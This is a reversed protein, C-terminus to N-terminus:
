SINDNCATYKLVMMAIDDSQVYQNSFSLVEQRLTQTIIAPSKETVHQLTQRLRETGFWEGNANEAETIGDTYLVISDGSSLQIECDEYGTDVFIGIPLSKVGHLESIKDGSLVYPTCHGGDCYTLKGTKTNLIALFITAFMTSDETSIERNIQGIIAAPSRDSSAKAKIWIMLGSMFLAAPMGKDSVDGLCVLLRDEDLQIFHYFDGGVERAPILCAYLDIDATRLVEGPLFSHQIDKAIKMESEMREKEATTIRLNEMSELLAEYLLMNELAIAAPSSIMELLRLDQGNFALNGKKNIVQLVGLTKGNSRVPVCIMNRTPVKVKASVRNSWRQDKSVDAILVSEGSSAVLGAIGEGAKLRIQKIEDNKEGTAVEFYLEGTKEDVLIISSGEAHLTRATTEMIIELLEKRKITSSLRLGIDLLAATRSRELNLKWILALAFCLAAGLLGIAIKIFM